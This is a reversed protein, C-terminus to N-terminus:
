IDKVEMEEVLEIEERSDINYVDYVWGRLGDDKGFALMLLFIILVLANVGFYWKVSSPLIFALFLLFLIYISILFVFTLLPLPHGYEAWKDFFLISIIVPIFLVVLVGVAYGGAGNRKSM